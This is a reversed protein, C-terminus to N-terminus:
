FFRLNEVQVIAVIVIKGKQSFNFKERTKCEEGKISNQGRFECVSAWVIVHM